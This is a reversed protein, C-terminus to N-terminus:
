IPINSPAQTKKAEIRKFSPTRAVSGPFHYITALEETNLVFPTRKYPYHFLSRRRYADFLKTKVKNKRINKFDQWPYVFPILGNTPKFGNLDASGYQKWSSIMGGINVGTFKDPETLYIARIGVDFGNKAISKEIAKAVNKEGESIVTIAPKDDVKESSIKTKPDRKLIEDVVKQADKKWDTDDPFLQELLTGGKKKRGKHMQVLIQYWVQQGEGISGLYEIVPTIPDIKEEEEQSKDLGFDAYTKIPYADEKVLTFECGWIDIKEGQDYKIFNTYDEAEVIEVDPYQAYIQSEMFSRFSRRMWIFFRVDGGISVIELSFWPRIGGKWYVDFWTSAAPGGQHLANLVLEMALPSKTQERPLKVELLIYKEKQITVARIYHLWLDWFILGLIIPLAVPAVFYLGDLVSPIAYSSLFSFFDQLM